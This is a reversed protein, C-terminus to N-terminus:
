SSRTRTLVRIDEKAPSAPRCTGEVGLGVLKALHWGLISIRPSVRCQHLGTHLFLVGACQACSTSAEEKHIYILGKSKLPM